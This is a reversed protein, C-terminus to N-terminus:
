DQVTQDGDRERERELPRGVRDRDRDRVRSEECVLSEIYLGFCRSLAQAESDVGVFSSPIVFTTPRRLDGIAELYFQKAMEHEQKM